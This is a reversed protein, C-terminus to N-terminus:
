SKANSPHHTSPDHPHPQVPFGPRTECPRNPSQRTKGSQFARQREAARYNSPSVSNVSKFIRSFYFPDDYGLRAAVEKVSLNTDCLLQSARQMRMRIFYDIPASGMWRKFLLFFQSPSFNAKAALTAVQLPQDVHQHMYAVTEEIRLFTESQRRANTGAGETSPQGAGSANYEMIMM